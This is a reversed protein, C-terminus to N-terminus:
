GRGRLVRLAKGLNISVGGVFSIGLSMADLLSDGAHGGATADCIRKVLEISEDILHMDLNVRYASTHPNVPVARERYLEAVSSTVYEPSPRKLNQALEFDVLKAEIERRDNITFIINPPM